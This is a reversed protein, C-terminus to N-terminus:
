KVIHMEDDDGVVDYKPTNPPNKECCSGIEDMEYKVQVKTQNELLLMKKLIVDLSSESTTSEPARRALNKVLADYDKLAWSFALPLATGDFERLVM